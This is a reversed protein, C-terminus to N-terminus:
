VHTALSKGYAHVIMYSWTPVTSHPEDYWRPSIYAHAGSVITRVEDTEELTKWQPNARGVHGELVFYGDPLPDNEINFM